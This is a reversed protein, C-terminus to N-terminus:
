QHPVDKGGHPVAHVGRLVELIKVMALTDLKCYELLGHRINEREESNNVMSLAAWASSAEGGNNVGPLEAYAEAMEPVLAPLVKKISYSGNQAPHYYWRNRFPLMLDRIRGNLALLRRRLDPFAEALKGIVGKEFKMSYALISGAPPIDALLHEALERRPDSGIPAIFERHFPVSPADNRSGYEEIHLSYQFPIQEFPRLGPFEPIAEQYSEFDLHTIPYELESLFEGIPEPEIHLNGLVQLKQAPSCDEPPVDALHVIGSEYLKFKREQRAGTLTFVSKEPIGALINWCYNKADCEYPSLCHRGIPREPEPGTLLNKMEGIRRPIDIARLKAKETVDIITFLTKLDPEEGRVYRNNIYVINVSTLRIGSNELVYAQVAADDIYTNKLGTSSKVEYLNWFSGHKHLIDVAVFLDDFLFSAEYITRSGSAILEQTRSAMGSFDGIDFPIKEGGPFLGRAVEGVRTGSDFIQQQWESPFSLRSRDNKYLWFFKPCQLYKLYQSKSLM